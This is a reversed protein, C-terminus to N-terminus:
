HSTDKIRPATAPITIEQPTEENLRQIYTDANADIESKITEMVEESADPLAQKAALLLSKVVFTRSPIRETATFINDLAVSLDEVSFSKQRTIQIDDLLDSKNQWMLWLRIIKMEIRNLQDAKKGLLTNLQQFETRLALGSAVENNSKRQGHVGSMHRIRFIEDSKRDIWKLVAEIPELVEAPLWDPKGDEGDEPNFELVNGAGVVDPAAAEGEKRMPKRMMPFGAFKMIEQGCSLDRVISACIRAIEVLDSQGFPTGHWKKINPMWTFPIEDLPNEGMDVLDPDKGDNMKWLEWSDRTWILYSGDDEKLKLYTLEKRHSNPNREFKWDLINELTYIAIYPYIRNALEDQVTIQGINPKNVLIGVGGWISANLDLNVILDNYPMGHLDADEYFMKWQPDSSLPGINRDAPKETLYFNIIDIISECFNFNYGEDLREKWNAQTERSHRHLAYKIFPWGGNYAIKYLTWEEIWEKYIAHTTFLSDPTM